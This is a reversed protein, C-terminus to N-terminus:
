KLFMLIIKLLTFHQNKKNTQTHYKYNKLSLYFKRNFISISKYKQTCHKNFKVLCQKQLFCNLKYM